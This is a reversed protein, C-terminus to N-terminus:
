IAQLFALSTGPTSGVSYKVVTVEVNDSPETVVSLPITSSVVSECPEHYVVVEKNGGKDDELESTTDELESITEEVSRSDEKCDKRSYKLESDSYANSLEEEMRSDLEWGLESTEDM